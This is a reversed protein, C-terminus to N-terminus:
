RVPDGAPAVQRADKRKARLIAIKTAHNFPAPDAPLTRIRTDPYGICDDPVSMLEEIALYGGTCLEELTRFYEAGSLFLANNVAVLRGGDALLPRVKNILRQSETVLNVTGQASTSFFPPDLFICDFLARDRKLRAVAAFFDGAWFTEPGTIQANLAHSTRAVDLFGRTRDLQILQRAGGALAAVGLSGTYAFTNLVRAGVLHGLAWRRLPRTDPYFSTDQNLLLEVAYRVGHERVERAPATGHTLVGNRFFRPDDPTAYRSKVVVAQLWPLTALYFRQAEDVTTAGAAAPRAHNLLVLTDGYVEAVLDPCGELFGNFLRVVGDHPEALLATRPALTASLLAPLSAADPM